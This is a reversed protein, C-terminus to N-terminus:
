VRYFIANQFFDMVTLDSLNPEWSSLFLLDQNKVKRLTYTEQISRLLIKIECKVGGFSLYKASWFPRFFSGVFSFKSLKQICFHIDCVILAWAKFYIIKVRRDLHGIHLLDLLKLISWRFGFNNKWFFQKSLLIIASFWIFILFIKVSFFASNRLLVLLM